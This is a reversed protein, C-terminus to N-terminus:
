HFIEEVSEVDERLGFYTTRMRTQSNGIAITRKLIEELEGNVHPKAGEDIEVRYVEDCRDGSMGHGYERQLGIILEYPSSARFEEGFEGMEPGKMSGVIYEDCEYKVVVPINEGEAM